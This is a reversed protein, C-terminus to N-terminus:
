VIAPMTLILLDGRSNDYRLSHDPVFVTDGIIDDFIEVVIGAGFNFRGVVTGYCKGDGLVVKKGIIRHFDFYGADPKLNTLKVFIERHVMRQASNRDNCFDFKAVCRGGICNLYEIGEVKLGDIYCFEDYIMDDMVVFGSFDIKVEGSVGYPRAIRGFLVMGLAEVQSLDSERIQLFRAIRSECSIKKM